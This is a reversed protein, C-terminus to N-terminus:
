KKVQHKASNHETQVKGYASYGHASYGHPATTNFEPMYPDPGTSNSTDSYKDSTDNAMAAGCLGLSILAAAAVMGFKKMNRTNM